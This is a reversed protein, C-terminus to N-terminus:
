DDAGDAFGIEMIRAGAAELEARRAPWGDAPIERGNVIVTGPFRHLVGITRTGPLRRLLTRLRPGHKM